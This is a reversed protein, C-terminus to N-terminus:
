PTAGATAGLLRALGEPGTPQDALMPVLALRSALCTAVEDLYHTETGARAVLLENTTVAAVLSQNVIWASPEIGARRLDDQLAAAEHIPTAEAM